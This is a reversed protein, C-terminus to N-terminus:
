RGARRARHRRERRQDTLHEPDLPGRDVHVVVAQPVADTDPVRDVELDLVDDREPDLGTLRNPEVPHEM